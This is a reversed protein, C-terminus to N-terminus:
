MLPLPLIRLAPSTCTVSRSPLTAPTILVLFMTIAVPETGVGSGGTGTSSSTITEDVPQRESLFTGLFIITIPAPTIPRSIPETQRLSPASTVTTSNRSRTVGPMSSSIALVNWRVSLLCPMFNLIPVLTTFPSRTPSPAFSVTSDTLFPSCSTSSASMTSTAIPRLGNVAPRPSSSAPTLIPGRPMTSTSSWKAVLTGPIQAIPSTIRPVISACLASSSPMATMSFM